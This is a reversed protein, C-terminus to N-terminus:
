PTVDDGFNKERYLDALIIAVFPLPAGAFLGVEPLLRQLAIVYVVCLGVAIL